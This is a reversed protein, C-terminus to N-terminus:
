KIGYKEMKRYLTTRGLGLEAAAKSMNGHHKNIAEEITEKEVETIKLSNGFSKGVAKTKLLFDGPTLLDEDAM